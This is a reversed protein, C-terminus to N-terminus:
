WFIVNVVANGICADDGGLVSVNIRFRNPVTVMESNSITLWDPIDDSLTNSDIDGVIGVDIWRVYCNITLEASHLGMAIDADVEAGLTPHFSILASRQLM